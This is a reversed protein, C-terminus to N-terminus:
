VENQVIYGQKLEEQYYLYLGITTIFVSIYFNISVMQGLLLWDFFASFLPTFFGFFSILTATYKKLLQGYLNYCIVNGILLLLLFPRVFNWDELAALYDPQIELYLSTITAAFGGGLMGIGNVYFYSYHGEHTLRKLIIWGFCSSIVAIIVYLEPLGAFLKISKSAVQAPTDPKLIIPLFGIFGICLGILKKFTVREKFLFYSILATVFPSLNFILSVKAPAMANIGLFEFIFSAYIHLFIIGIFWGLDKIKFLVPHKEKFYSYGLLLVGGIIMRFGIFSIPPMFYLCEKGLTFTVAFLAYLVFILLMCM